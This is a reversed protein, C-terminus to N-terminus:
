CVQGATVATERDVGSDIAFTFSGYDTVDRSLTRKESKTSGSDANQRFDPLVKEGTGHPAESDANLREKVSTV